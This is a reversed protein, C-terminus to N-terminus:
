FLYHFKLKVWDPINFEAETLSFKNHYFFQDTNKNKWDKNTYQHSETWQVISDKISDYEEKNDRRYEFAFSWAEGEYETFAVEWFDQSKRQVSMGNRTSTVGEGPHRHYVHGIEHLIRLLLGEGLTKASWPPSILNGWFTGRANIYISNQARLSNKHKEDDVFYIEDVGFRQTLQVVEDPPALLRVGILHPPLSM